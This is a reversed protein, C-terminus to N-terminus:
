EEEIKERKFVDSAFFEDLGIELGDCIEYIIRLKMSPYSCKMITSLTSQPVGTKLHLGYQTLDRENCLEKIRHAIAENLKM